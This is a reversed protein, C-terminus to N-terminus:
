LQQYWHCFFYQFNQRKSSKERKFQSYRRLNKFFNSVAKTTYEPAQPFSIWTSFRFDFIEHCQGKLDIGLWTTTCEHINYACNWSRNWDRQHHAQVQSQGSAAAVAWGSVARALSLIYLQEHIFKLLSAEVCALSSAIETIPFNRGGVLARVM